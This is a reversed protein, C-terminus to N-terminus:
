KRLSAPRANHANSDRPRETGQAGEQRTSTPDYDLLKLYNAMQAPLIAWTTKRRPGAGIVEPNEPDLVLASEFGFSGGELKRRCTIAAVNIDETAAEEHTPEKFLRKKKKEASRGGAQAAIEGAPSAPARLKGKGARRLRAPRGSQAGTWTMAPCLFEANGGGLLNGRAAAPTVKSPM